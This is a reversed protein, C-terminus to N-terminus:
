NDGVALLLAARQTSFERQRALGYARALLDVNVYPQM